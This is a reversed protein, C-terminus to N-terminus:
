TAHNSGPFLSLRPRHKLSLIPTYLYIKVLQQRSRSQCTPGTDLLPSPINSSHKIWSMTYLNNACNTMPCELLSALYSESFIMGGLFPPLPPAFFPFPPLFDPDVLTYIDLLYSEEM